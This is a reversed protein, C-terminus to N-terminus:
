AFQKLDINSLRPLDNVTVDNSIEGSFEASPREEGPDM